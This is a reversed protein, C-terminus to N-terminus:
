KLLIMKKTDILKGNIFLSYLYVGSSLNNGSFQVSYTGPNQLEKVLVMIERGIIDFVELRIIGKKLLQYEISTVPNFPNPYNQYLKYEKPFNNSIKQIGTLWVTDGGSLTHVEVSGSNAWGVNGNVFTLFNYQAAHITTDPIQFLWNNGGNTTRFLIGRLQNNPFIIRGGGVWITDSNILSFKTPYLGSIGLGSPLVQAIWNLGGDTTARVSDWVSWGRLSDVFIMDSFAQGSILLNWSNGSNTTKFIGSGSADTRHIFGIRANFMYIHDSPPAPQQQWNLGGNSTFFVGGVFSDSNIIWITDQNLVYMNEPSIGSVNITSWSYGGDITKYLYGAVAYGTVLNLFQIHQMPFWQRYIISWNEGGNITRLVYNSDSPYNNAVAIGTLSDLFTIDKIQKGGIDPMFQQTWGGAIPNLPPTFALLFIASILVSILIKYKKNM